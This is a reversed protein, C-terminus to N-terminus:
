KSVGKANKEIEKRFINKPGLVELVYELMDRNSAITRAAKTIASARISEIWNSTEDKTYTETYVINAWKLSSGDETREFM